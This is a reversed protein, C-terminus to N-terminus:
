LCASSRLQRLPASAMVLDICANPDIATTSASATGAVAHACAPGRGVVDPLELEDPPDAPPDDPEEPPVEPPPLLSPVRTEGGLPALPSGILEDEEDEEAGLRILRVV